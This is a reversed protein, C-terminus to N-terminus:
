RNKGLERYLNSVRGGVFFIPYEVSRARLLVFDRSDRWIKMVRGPVRAQAKFLIISSRSLSASRNPLIDLLVRLMGAGV